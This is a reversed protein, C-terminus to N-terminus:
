SFLDKGPACVVDLLSRWVCDALEKDMDLEVIMDGDTMWQSGDVLDLWWGGKSSKALSSRYGDEVEVGNVHTIDSKNM